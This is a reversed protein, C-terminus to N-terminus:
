DPVNHIKCKRFGISSNTWTNLRKKPFIGSPQFMQLSCGQLLNVAQEIRKQYSENEKVASEITKESEETM